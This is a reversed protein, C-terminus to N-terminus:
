YGQPRSQVGVQIGLFVKKADDEWFLFDSPPAAFSLVYVDDGVPTYYNVLIRPKGVPIREIEAAQLEKDLPDMLDYLEQPREIYLVQRIYPRTPHDVKELVLPKIKTGNLYSFAYVRDQAFQWIESLAKPTETLMLLGGFYGLWIRGDGRKLLIMERADQRSSTEKAFGYLEPVLLKFEEVYFGKEVKAQSVPESSKCGAFTVMVLFPLLIFTSFFRRM